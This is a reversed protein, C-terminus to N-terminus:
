LVGFSGYPITYCCADMLEKFALSAICRSIHVEGSRKKENLNQYFLLCFATVCPIVLVLSPSDICIIV